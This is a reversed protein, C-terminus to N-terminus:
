IRRIKKRIDAKRGTIRRKDNGSIKECAIGGTQIEIM